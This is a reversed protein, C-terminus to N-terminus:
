FLLVENTLAAILGSKISSKLGLEVRLFLTSLIMWCSEIYMAFWNLFITVPM